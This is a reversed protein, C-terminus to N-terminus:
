IETLVKIRIYKARWKITYVCPKDSNIAIIVYQLLLDWLIATVEEDKPLNIGELQRVAKDFNWSYAVRGEAKDVKRIDEDKFKLKFWETLESKNM